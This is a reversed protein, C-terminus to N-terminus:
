YTSKPQTADSPKCIPEYSFVIEIEVPYPIGCNQFEIISLDSGLAKIPGQGLYVHAPIELKLSKGCIKYELKGEKLCEPFEEIKKEKTKDDNAVKVRAQILLFNCVAGTPLFPVPVPVKETSSPPCDGKGQPTSTTTQAKAPLDVSLHGHGGAFNQIIKPSTSGDVKVTFEINTVAMLNGRFSEFSRM